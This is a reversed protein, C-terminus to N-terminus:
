DEEISIDSALSTVFLFRSEFHDFLSVFFENPIKLTLFHDIRVLFFNFVLTIHSIVVNLM